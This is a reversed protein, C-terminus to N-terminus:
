EAAVPEPQRAGAVGLYTQIEDAITTGREAALDLLMWAYLRGAQEFDLDYDKAAGQTRCRELLALEIETPQYGDVLRRSGELTAALAAPAFERAYGVALRNAVYEEHWADESLRDSAFRWAHFFEHAVLLPTSDILLRRAEDFGLGLLHAQPGIVETGLDELDPYHVLNKAPEFLYLPLHWPELRPPEPAGWPTLNDAVSQLARRVEGHFGHSPAFLHASEAIPEPDYLVSALADAMGLLLRHEGRPADFSALNEHLGQRLEEIADACAAIAGSEYLLERLEDASEPLQRQSEEFRRVQEPEGHEYLAALPYSWTGAALDASKEKGYLDRVDDVIQALATLDSGFHRFRAVQEPSAGGVLAALEAILAISSTKGRHREIVAAMSPAVSSQSGELDEHQAGVATLAVRNYAELYALRREVDPELAVARYLSQEALILLTLAVNTAIPAGAAECPKGALDDDQVDDFLDASALYFCAFAGLEITREDLPVGQSRVVAFYLGLPQNWDDDHAASLM